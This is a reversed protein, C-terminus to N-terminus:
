HGTASFHMYDKAAPGAAGVELAMIRAGAPVSDAQKSRV